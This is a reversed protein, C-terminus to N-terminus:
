CKKVSMKIHFRCNIQTGEEFDIPRGNQDVVTVNINSIRQRVVPLYILNHPQEILKYSSLPNPYFEHITHTSLDNYFSESVLDCNVRITSVNFSGLCHDAEVTSSGLITRPEFGLIKAIAKSQEFNGQVNPGTQIHYKMTEENFWLGVNHKNNKMKEEVEVAIEKLTRHGGRLQIHHAKSYAHDHHYHHYLFDDADDSLTATLAPIQVSLDLLCCSYNFRRDLEFEPALNASLSSSNGSLSVNISEM